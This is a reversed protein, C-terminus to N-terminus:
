DNKNVQERIYGIVDEERVVFYEEGNVNFKTTSYKNFYITDGVKVRLPEKHGNDFVRGDGVSIVKGLEPKTDYTTPVIVGDKETIVLSRVLINDHLIKFDKINNPQKSQHKM